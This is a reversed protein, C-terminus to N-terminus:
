RNYEQHFLAKAQANDFRQRLYTRRPEPIANAEAKAAELLASRDLM